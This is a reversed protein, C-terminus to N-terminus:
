NKPRIPLSDDSSRIPVGVVLLAVGVAQLDLLM